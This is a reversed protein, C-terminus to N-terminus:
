NGGGFADDLPGSIVLVFMQPIVISLNLVGLSLGQGVYLLVGLM